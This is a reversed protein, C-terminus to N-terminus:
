GNSTDLYVIAPQTKFYPMPMRIKVMNEDTSQIMRIGKEAYAEMREDTVPCVFERNYKTEDPQPSGPLTANISCVGTESGHGFVAEKVSRETFRCEKGEWDVAVKVDFHKRVRFDLVTLDERGIAKTPKTKPEDVPTPPTETSEIDNKKNKQKDFLSFFKRWYGSDEYKPDVIDPLPVQEPSLNDNGSPGTGSGPGESISMLGTRIFKYPGLFSSQSLAPPKSSSTTPQTSYASVKYSSTSPSKSYLLPIASNAKSEQEGGRLVLMKNLGFTSYGHPMEEYEVPQITYILIM